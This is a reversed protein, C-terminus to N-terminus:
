PTKPRDGVTERVFCAPRQRVEHLVRVMYEGIMGVALLIVGSFFTVLLVVTTWGPVRIRGMLFQILFWATLLLSAACAIFGLGSALRLPLLTVNCITDFAMRFQRALSYNSRGAFRPSHEVPISIVRRTTSFILVSIVPSATRYELLADVLRRRMVRFASTRIGKPLGFSFANVRRILASGLNRYAAHHKEEFFGLVADLDPNADLAALLKPLQDPRHQLDDDMTAIVPAAAAALGCLTARVQGENHMLQIGRVQPHEAALQRIVSWSDDPSCDDVLIAEWTRGHAGLVSALQRILEPLCPASRYVPIVISLSVPTTTSM